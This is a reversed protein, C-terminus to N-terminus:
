SGGKPKPKGHMLSRATIVHWSGGYSAIGQGKASSGRDGSYTYLPHRDLMVQFLKAKVRTLISAQGPVGKAVSVRTSASPVKFPPWTKLCQSSICKLKALSEGGLAYLTRGQGDVVISMSRGKVTRKVIKLSPGSKPATAAIVHWTGGYSNIGQGKASSGRDGSYTYLPHRNLMVQYLNASVRHMISVQGPVDGSVAVRTNASPVTVPKWTKLCQASVCKLKALSEGGLAYVTQGSGTIVITRGKGSVTRKATTLSVGGGAAAATAAFVLGAVLLGAVIARVPRGKVVDRM